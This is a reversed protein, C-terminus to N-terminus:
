KSTVVAVFTSYGQKGPNAAYFELKLGELKGGYGYGIARNIVIGRMQDAVASFTGEWRGGMDPVTWQFTGWMHGYYNADLNGQVNTINNGGLMAAASGTVDQYALKNSVDKFFVRTTTPGCPPSTGTLGGNECLWTGPNIPQVHFEKGTAVLVKPDSQACAVVWALLFFVILVQRLM